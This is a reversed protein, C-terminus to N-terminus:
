VRLSHFSKQGSNYNIIVIIWNWAFENSLSFQKGSSNPSSLQSFLKKNKIRRFYMFISIQIHMSLWPFPGLNLTFTKRQLSFPDHASRCRCLENTFMEPCIFTTQSYALKREISDLVLLICAWYSLRAITFDL